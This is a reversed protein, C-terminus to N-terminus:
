EYVTTTITKPFVEDCMTQYYYNGHYYCYSYSYYRGDDKCQFYIEHCEGDGETLKEDVYVYHKGEYEIESGAGQLEYLADEPINIRNRDKM